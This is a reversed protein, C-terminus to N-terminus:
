RGDEEGVIEEPTEVLFLGLSLGTLTQSPAQLAASRPLPRSMLDEPTAEHISATRITPSM